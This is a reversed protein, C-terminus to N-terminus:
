IEFTCGLEGASAKGHVPIQAGLEFPRQSVKHKVQMGAFVAIGLYKRGVQHIGIGHVTGPLQGLKGGIQKAYRM